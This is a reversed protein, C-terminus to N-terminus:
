SGSPIHRIELVEKTGEGVKASEGMRHGIVWLVTNGQALVFLTDREDAPIKTKMFHEYIKQTQGEKNIVIVDERAPHRICLEGTLLAYDFWKRDEEGPLIEGNTYERKRCLFEEGEDTRIRGGTYEKSIGIAYRKHDAPGKEKNWRFLLVGEYVRKLRIGYILERERGTQSAFLKEVAEVQASGIDRKRGAVRELSSLMLEHYIFPHLSLIGNKLLVEGEKIICVSDGVRKAEEKLYDEAERLRLATDRMHRGAGPCIKEAVPLIEHRIRNRSIGPDANSEDERWCIGQKTLSAKIEEKTIVLLPRIIDGAVPLMGRIGRIGSGRFLQFLITESLDDGHHAVAIRADEKGETLLRFFAYRMERGAEEVSLGLEEAAKAADIHLIKLPIDWEECLNQVFTEDADAATRLGHHVHAALLNIPHSEAYEKLCYLLFVSDAGGSIGVVITRIGELMHEKEMHGFVKQKPDEM